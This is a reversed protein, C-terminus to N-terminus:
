CTQYKTGWRAAALHEIGSRKSYMEVYKSEHGLTLGMTKQDM